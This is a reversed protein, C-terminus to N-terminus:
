EEKDGGLETTLVMVVIMALMTFSFAPNVIDLLCTQIYIAICTSYIIRCTGKVTGCMRWLKKALKVIAM